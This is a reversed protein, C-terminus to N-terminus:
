SEPNPQQGLWRSNLVTLGMMAKDWSPPGNPQSGVILSLSAISDCGHGSSGNCNSATGEEADREPMLRIYWGATAHM